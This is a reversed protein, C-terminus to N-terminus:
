LQEKRGEVNLDLLSYLLGMLEKEKWEFIQLMRPQSLQFRKASMEAIFAKDAATMNGRPM